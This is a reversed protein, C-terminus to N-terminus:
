QPLVGALTGDVLRLVRNAINFVRADHTILLVACSSQRVAEVIAGKVAAATVDDLSATPEDALIL